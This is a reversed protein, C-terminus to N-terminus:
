RRLGTRLRGPGGAGVPDVRPSTEDVHRGLPTIIRDIVNLVHEDDRFAVDVQEIKGAREIYVQHPGNVMVETVTADALYPEIPGFGAIEYLVEEILRERETRSLSVDYDSMHENIFTALENRMREPNSLDLRSALADIIDNELRRRVDRLMAQRSTMRKAPASPQAAPPKTARPQQGAVVVDTAGSGSKNRAAEVRELLSM